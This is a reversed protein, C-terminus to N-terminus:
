YIIRYSYDNQGKDLVEDTQQTEHDVNKKLAAKFANIWDNMEEETETAFTYGKNGSMRLEFCFRGRKANQLTSFLILNINKKQKPTVKPHHWM